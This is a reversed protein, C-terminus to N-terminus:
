LDFSIKIILACCIFLAPFMAIATILSRKKAFIRFESELYIISSFQDRNFVVFVLSPNVAQVLAQYPMKCEAPWIELPFEERWIDGGVKRPQNRNPNFGSFDLRTRIWFMAFGIKVLFCLFTNNRVSDVLAVYTKGAWKKNFKVFLYKLPYAIIYRKLKAHDELDKSLFLTLGHFIDKLRQLFHFPRWLLNKVYCFSYIIICLVLVFSFFLM